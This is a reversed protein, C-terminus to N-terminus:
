KQLIVSILMWFGMNQPRPNSTNPLIKPLHSICSITTDSVIINKLHWYADLISLFLKQRGRFASHTSVGEANGYTIMLREKFCLKIMKEIWKDEFNDKIDIEDNSFISYTTTAPFSFWYIIETAYRPCLSGKTVSCIFSIKRRIQKEFGFIAQSSLSSPLYVLLALTICSDLFIATLM